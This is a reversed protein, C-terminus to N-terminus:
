TATFAPPHFRDYVARLGLPEVRIEELHQQSLWGLLRPLETSTEITVDRDGHYHWECTNAFEAPPPLLPERLQARIRHHRRLDAMCQDHVLRGARLIVVRDCAEEIESLVHSSFIVTRGARKAAVVMAIVEGRVTPDLNATPEDLIVLPTDAAMTAALALKQRMGTSMQGVRRTLDLELRAAVALYDQWSAGPRTAAFFELVERARMTRFLRADGPLYSTMRRVALSERQCDKGGIRAVGSTPKLFGLLIRILTTKGAGNPGLLGLVEGAPVALTCDSLAAVHPYTKTLSETAVIM